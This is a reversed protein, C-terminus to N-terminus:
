ISECLRNLSNCRVQGLKRLGALNDILLPRLAAM